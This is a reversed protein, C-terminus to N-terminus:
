FQGSPKGKAKIQFLSALGKRNPNKKGGNGFHEARIKFINLSGADRRKGRNLGKKKSIRGIKSFTKSELGQFIKGYELVANLKTNNELKKIEEEIEKKNEDDENGM